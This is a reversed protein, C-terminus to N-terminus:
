FPIEDDIDDMSKQQQKNEAGATEMIQIESAIIQSTKVNNGNKDTYDQNRLTGTLCVKMGKMKDVPTRDIIAQALKGFVVVKNWTTNEQQQGNKDKYTEQTAVSLSLVATGSKTYNDYASGINGFIFVQNITGKAM